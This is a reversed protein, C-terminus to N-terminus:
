LTNKFPYKQKNHDGHPPCKYIILDREADRSYEQLKLSAARKNQPESM